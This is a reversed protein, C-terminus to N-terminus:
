HYLYVNKSLFSCLIMQYLILIARNDLVIPKIAYLIRYGTLAGTEPDGTNQPQM